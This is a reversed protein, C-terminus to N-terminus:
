WWWLGDESVKRRTRNSFVPVGSLLLVGVDGSDIAAVCFSSNDVFTMPLSSSTFGFPFPTILFEVFALEVNL